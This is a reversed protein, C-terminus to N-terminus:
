KFFHNHLIWAYTPIASILFSCHLILTHLPGDLRALNYALLLSWSLACVSFLNWDQYVGIWSKWFLIFIGMSISAVLLFQNFPDALAIRRFAFLLPLLPLLPFLLLALNLVGREYQWTPHLVLMMGWQGGHAFVHSRHFLNGIPLGRFHAWTLVAIGIFVYAGVAIATHAFQRRRLAYIWLLVLSFLLGGGLVHFCTGVALLVTPLIVSTGRHLFRFATFFYSAIFLNVLTYDEVDGFFLQMFGASAVLLAFWAAADDRKESPPAGFADAAFTLLLFVFVAGALASVVQYTRAVDWHFHSNTFIWIQSHVHEELLEDHTFYTGIRLVGKPINVCLWLGDLNFFHSRFHFFFAFAALAVLARMATKAAPSLLPAARAASLRALWAFALAAACAAPLWRLGVHALQRLGFWDTAETGPPGHFLLFSCALQLAGLSGLLALLTLPEARSRPPKEVAPVPEPGAVESPVPTV